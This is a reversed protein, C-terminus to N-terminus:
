LCRLGQCLWPSGVFSGHLEALLAALASLNCRDRSGFPVHLRPHCRPLSRDLLPDTQNEKSTMGIARAKEPPGLFRARVMEFQGLGCLNEAFNELGLQIIHREIITLVLIQERYM